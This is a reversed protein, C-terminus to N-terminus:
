LLSTFVFHVSKERPLLHALAFFARQVFCFSGGPVADVGDGAFGFVFFGVVSFFGRAPVVVVARPNKNAL